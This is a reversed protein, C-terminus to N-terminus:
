AGQSNDAVSQAAHNNVELDRSLYTLVGLWFAFRVDFGFGGQFWSVHDDPVGPSRHREANVM